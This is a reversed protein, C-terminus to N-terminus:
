IILTVLGCRILAINFIDQWPKEDDHLNRYTKIIIQLRPQISFRYNWYSYFAVLYSCHSIACCTNHQKSFTMYLWMQPVLPMISHLPVMCQSQLFCASSWQMLPKGNTVEIRPFVESKAGLWYKVLNNCSFSQLSRISIFKVSVFHYKKDSMFLSYVITMLGKCTLKKLPFMYIYIYIYKMDKRCMSIACSLQFGEDLLVLVLRKITWTM